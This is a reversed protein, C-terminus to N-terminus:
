RVPATGVPIQILRVCGSRLVVSLTMLSTHGEQDAGCM